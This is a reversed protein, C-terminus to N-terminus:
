NLFLSGIKQLVSQEEELQKSEAKEPIDPFESYFTIKCVM